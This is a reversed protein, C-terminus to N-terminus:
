WLYLETASRFSWFLSQISSTTLNNQSLFKSQIEVKFGVHSSFDSFATLMQLERRSIFVTHYQRFSWFRRAFCTFSNLFFLACFRFLHLICSLHHDALLMSADVNNHFDLVNACQFHESVRSKFRNLRLLKTRLSTFMIIFCM